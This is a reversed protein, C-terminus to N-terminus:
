QWGAPSGKGSESKQGCKAAGVVEKAEVDIKGGRGWTEDGDDPM